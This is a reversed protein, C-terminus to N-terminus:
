TTKVRDEGIGPKSPDHDTSTRPGQRDDVFRAHQPIDFEFIEAGHYHYIEAVISCHHLIVQIFDERVINGLTYVDVPFPNRAIDFDEKFEPVSRDGGWIPLESPETAGDEYRLSLGFDIWLYRSPKRTRSYFKADKDWERDLHTHQPHYMRPYMGNPDLMINLTM